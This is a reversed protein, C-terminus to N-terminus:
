SACSINLDIYHIIILIFLDSINLVEKTSKLSGLFFINKNFNSNRSMQELRAREPGDGVLLLKTDIEKSIGEFAIIVDEIRKVKRFISNHAINLELKKRKRM